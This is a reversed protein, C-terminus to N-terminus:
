CIPRALIAAGDKLFKGPLNDIGAAKSPNLDKLINLIKEPSTESFEFNSDKNLTTDTVNKSSQITHRFSLVQSVLFFTKQKVEFTKKILKKQTPKRERVNVFWLVASSPPPWKM